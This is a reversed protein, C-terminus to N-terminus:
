EHEGYKNEIWIELERLSANIVTSMTAREKLEADDLREQMVEKIYVLRKYVTKEIKISEYEKSM